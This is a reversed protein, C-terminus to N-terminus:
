PVRFVIEASFVDPKGNRLYPRFHWQRAAGYAAMFLPTPVNYPNSVGNVSGDLSIGLRVKVETGKALGPPFEPEIVKTALNRADADSLISVPDGIKTNFVFTFVAEAQVPVEHDKEKAPKFQWKMVQERASDDLSPNDSNLPWTERVHGSRDISVYMSLVGSTKGGRVTPWLIDPASALLTQTAADSLTIREIRDGPPTPQQITFLSEDPNRLETLETVTAEITTGSEPDIVIRRAVRKNKFDRYDSFKADYGPSVVSELLGHSGEFCYVTFVNNEAPPAGVKMQSRPCSISQESGSPKLMMASSNKLSELMPLPDVIATVLDNLWWPFYAGSNQESVRDGNVILTQTLDPSTITRRWKDPSVWYEEIEAKYDSDPNTTEVIKAKLHFPASGTLTLKSQEVAHQAVESLPVTPPNSGFTVAAALCVTLAIVFYRM